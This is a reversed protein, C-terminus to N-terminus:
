IINLFSEKKGGLRILLTMAGKMVKEQRGEREKGKGEEKGSVGGGM